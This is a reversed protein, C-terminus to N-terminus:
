GLSKLNLLATEVASAAVLPKEMPFLHGGDLMMVRGKTIRQTLEMGVKRVEVSRTGGIFAVPCPVPHDKLFREMDHPLTNYIATEVARDFSLVRETQGNIVLEHTGHTAYDELVQPHWQAFVKKSKFHALVADLSPWSQRRRRSVKGPSFTDVMGTRKSMRVMGARWGGLIPSDMLVVGKVLRPELCAAMLSLYGGLSHGVLWAPESHRTVQETAFAVLEQTMSGWNDQIPFRPDHGFKDLAAVKIGRAKLASFLVGYVPAPYGNAHSFIINL